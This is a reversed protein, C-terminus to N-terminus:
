PRLLKHARLAQNAHHVLSINHPEYLSGEAAPRLEELWNSRDERQRSRHYTVSRQKEDLEYDEEELRPIM